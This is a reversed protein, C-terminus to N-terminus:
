PIPAAEAARQRRHVIRLPLPQELEILLDRLVCQHVLAEAEGAELLDEPELPDVPQPAPQDPQGEETGSTQNQAVPRISRRSRAADRAARGARRGAPRTPQNMTADPKRGSVVATDGYRSTTWRTSARAATRGRQHPGAHSTRRGGGVGRASAAPQTRQHSTQQAHDANVMTAPPKTAPVWAPKSKCCAERQHVAPQHRRAVRSQLRQQAVQGLVDGRHLEIMPQQRRQGHKRCGGRHRNARDTTEAVSRAGRPAPARPSPRPAIRARRPSAAAPREPRVPSRQVLGVGHQQQGGREHQQM